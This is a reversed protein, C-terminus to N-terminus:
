EKAEKEPWIFAVGGHQVITAEEAAIIYNAFDVPVGERNPNLMDFVFRAPEGASPEGAIFDGHRAKLM